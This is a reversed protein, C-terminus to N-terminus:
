GTVPQMAGFGHARVHNVHLGTCDADHVCEACRLSKVRYGDDVYRRIFRFPEPRGDDALMAGDLLTERARPPRGLVCAPVDEVPVPATFEAFFARLDVDHERSETLREWSPQVLALRGLREPHADPWTALEAANARTLRVVVEFAGPADLLRAADAATTVYVRRLGPFRGPELDAADELELDLVAPSVGRADLWRRASAGNRSAVRVVEAQAAQQALTPYTRKVLPLRRKDRAHEASAPDGGYVAPEGVTVETDVRLGQWPREGHTRALLGEFEDCVDELYCHGCRRPERCDLPEGHEVWHAYEEKRGRIEDNLKYPDQILEEFGECHPVPFRNLWLHWDPRHAYAFAERLEGAHARLDYFLREKGDRWANGFPIVHLLDVERVGTEEFFAMMEPLVKINGRNVCVDVNVIPRGDALANKLGALTQEFAGKTGVLADHIRPNHGHLSVTIEQLGADLCRGLFEPYAFMRANSVTQVREYGALRGLRIFDVYRPHITPEGGSLILREAGKRRGDLIQQKIQEPSRMRGDHTDSDLCFICKDNCDFTLRVWNRKQHAAAENGEVDVPRDETWAGGDAAARLEELM